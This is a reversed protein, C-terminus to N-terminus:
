SVSHRLCGDRNAGESLHALADHKHFVKKFDLGLFVDFELAVGFILLSTNM